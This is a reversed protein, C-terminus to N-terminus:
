GVKAAKELLSILRICAQATDWGRVDRTCATALKSTAERPHCTGRDALVKEAYLRLADPKTFWIKFCRNALKGSDQLPGPVKERRAHTAVEWM